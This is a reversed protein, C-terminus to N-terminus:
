ISKKLMQSCIGEGDSLFTPVAIISNLVGGEREICVGPARRAGNQSVGRHAGPVTLELPVGSRPVPQTFFLLVVGEPDWPHISFIQSVIYM